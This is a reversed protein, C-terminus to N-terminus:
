RGFSSIPVTAKIQILWARGKFQPSLAIGRETARARADVLSLNMYPRQALFDRDQIYPILCNLGHRASRIASIPLIM